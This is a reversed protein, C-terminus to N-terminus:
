YHIARGVGGGVAIADGNISGAKPSALFAVVWAVEQADIIRQVTNGAAMDREIDEPSRGTHQARAAVVGDTKETRTLGPHVVTVTIGAPGLEDALNKAMAAVAVNRISGITSGTQRAALGSINIIRGWGNAAMHPAVAQACRLYGMVKVNVDDWFLDDTIDGLKPVPGQGGPKAANNVLIDIGGLAAVAEDVMRQVDTTVGTDAAVAVVTRGTAAAIEDRAAALAAADRGAIAVDCGERALELAIAKGIGRSGGTILARKGTLQLDM